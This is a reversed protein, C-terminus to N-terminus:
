FSDPESLYLILGDWSVKNEELLDKDRMFQMVKEVAEKKADQLGNSSHKGVIDLLFFYLEDWGSIDEWFDAGVILEHSGLHKSERKGYSIGEICRVDRISGGQKLVKTATEFNQKLRKKQSSNGWNKGSKVQILVRQRPGESYELDIGEIGSKLGNRGHRCAIEACAEFIDGFMTEESSSLTAEIMNRVVDDAKTMGRIRFLFPNKRGLLFMPKNGLEGLKAKLKETFGAVVEDIEAEASEWWDPKESM